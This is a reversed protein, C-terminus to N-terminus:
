KEAIADVASIVAGRFGDKELSAVGRITSGGPSCVDDKMSGPHNKEELYLAGVGEIMKAALEYAQARKLGHKVGADGLAEVYMETFAPACGAITGAINMQTRNVESILGIPEFLSVFVAKQDESLTSTDETVIVGEGVSVATNPIISIHHTDPIIEDLDTKYVGWALSVVFKDDTQLLDRCETLADAIKDPKVALIVVDANAIAEANSPMPTTGLKECNDMLRDYDMASALINKPELVKKAIWGRAIAQGMNGFGIIAAQM